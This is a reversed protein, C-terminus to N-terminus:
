ALQPSKDHGTRRQEPILKNGPARIPRNFLFAIKEMCPLGLPQRHHKEESNHACAAPAKTTVQQARSAPKVSFQISLDAGQIHREKVKESELRPVARYM